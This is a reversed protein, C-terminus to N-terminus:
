YGHDKAPLGDDGKQFAAPVHALQRLYVSLHGRHCEHFIGNGEALEDIEADVDSVEVVRLREEEADFDWADEDPVGHDPAEAAALLM